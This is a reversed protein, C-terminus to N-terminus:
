ELYCRTKQEQAMDEDEQKNTDLEASRIYVDEGLSSRRADVRSLQDGPEFIRVFFHIDPADLPALKTGTTEEDHTGIRVSFLRRFIDFRSHLVLFYKAGERPEFSFDDAVMVFSLKSNFKQLIQFQCYQRDSKRRIYVSTKGQREYSGIRINKELTRMDWWAYTFLALICAPLFM